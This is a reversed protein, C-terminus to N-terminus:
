FAYGPILAMLKSDLWSFASRGLASRAVFGAFFCLFIVILLAILNIIAIGAVADIPLMKAFPQAVLMM